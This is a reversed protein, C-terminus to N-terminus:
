QLPRQIKCIAARITVRQLIFHMTILKIRGVVKWVSRDCYGSKRMEESINGGM